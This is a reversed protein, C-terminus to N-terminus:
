VPEAKLWQKLDDYQTDKDAESKLAPLLDNFYRDSVDGCYVANIGSEGGAFFGDRNRQIVGDRNIREILRTAVFIWLDIPPFRGDKLIPAHEMLLDVMVRGHQRTMKREGNTTNTASETVIGM